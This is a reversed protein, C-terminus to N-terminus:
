PWAQQLLTWGGLVTATVLTAGATAISVIRAWWKPGHGSSARPREGKTWWRPPVSRNHITFHAGEPDDWPLTGIPLGDPGTETPVPNANARMWRLDATDDDRPPPAPLAAQPTLQLAELTRQAILHEVRGLTMYAADRDERVKDAVELLPDAALQFRGLEFALREEEDLIPPAPNDCEALGIAFDLDHELDRLRAADDAEWQDCFKALDPDLAHLREAPTPPKKRTAAIASTRSM